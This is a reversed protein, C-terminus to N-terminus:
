GVADMLAQMLAEAETVTLRIERTKGGDDPAQIEIRYDDGGVDIITVAHGHAIQAEAVVEYTDSM